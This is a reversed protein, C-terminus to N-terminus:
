FTGPVKRYHYWIKLLEIPVRLYDSSRLKSGPQHIWIKLPMEFIQNASGKQALHRALIEVDFFWPSVFREKFLVRAIPARFLKAGCQTDYVPLHLIQSVATAFLRGLLHRSWRREIQNGLKRLRSGLIMQYYPQENFYRLMRHSEELPTALDADFYGVFQLEPNELAKMVGRRVAEAKGQNKELKLGQARPNQAALAEIVRWTGDQSGDDVLLLEFDPSQTLFALLQDSKLRNEENYCPIVLCSKM